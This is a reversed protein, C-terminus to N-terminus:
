LWHNFTQCIGYNPAVAPTEKKEFIRACSCCMSQNSTGLWDFTLAYKSLQRLQPLTSKSSVWTAINTIHDLPCPSRSSASRYWAAPRGAVFTLGMWFTFSFYLLFTKQTLPSINADNNNIMYSNYYDMKISLNTKPVLWLCALRLIAIGLYQASNTSNWPRNKFVKM